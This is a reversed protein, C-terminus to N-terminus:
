CFSWRRTLLTGQTCRMWFLLWRAVSVKDGKRKYWIKGRWSGEFTAVVKREPVQKAKTFEEPDESEADYEYIVGELAYKAKM